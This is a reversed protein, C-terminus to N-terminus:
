IVKMFQFFSEAMLNTIATVEGLFFPTVMLLVGIGLLFTIPMSTVLVNIQPVARGLIGMALNTLFIAVLVPASIKLGALIIQQAIPVIGAFAKTNLGVAAVPALHFSEAMGSIFVHHGNIALFFLTAIMTQFQDVINGSSGMAPNFIQASSLGLALSIVEGSISVALFIFRMLFGLTVGIVIERISLFIILNDIKILDVQNFHITPFLIVSLMLALLVKVQVPVSSTGFVPWSIVFAVARLFVLAFAIIQGEPFQQLGPFM